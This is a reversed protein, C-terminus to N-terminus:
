NRLYCNMWKELRSEQPVDIRGRLQEAKGSPRLLQVGSRANDMGYGLTCNSFGEAFEAAVYLRYPIGMDRRIKAAELQPRFSGLTPALASAPCGQDSKPSNFSFTTAIVAASVGAFLHGPTGV